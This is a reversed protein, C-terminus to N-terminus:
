DFKKDAHPNQNWLEFALEEDVMEHNLVKQLKFVVNQIDSALIWRKYYVVSLQNWM